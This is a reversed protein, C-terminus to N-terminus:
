EPIGNRFRSRAFVKRDNRSVTVCGKHVLVSRYRGNVMRKLNETQESQSIGKECVFCTFSSRHQDMLDMYILCFFGPITVVHLLAIMLVDSNLGAEVTMTIDFIFLLISM